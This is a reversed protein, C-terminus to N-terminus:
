TNTQEADHQAMYKLLIANRDEPTRHPCTSCYEGGDTKYWYCCSARDLFVQTRDRFTLEILGLQRTNLPSGPFRILSNVEAEILAAGATKDQEQMLWTLMGACSDAVNLWLGPSKSGLRSCLQDITLGFHTEIGDRLADRLAESNAVTLADPHGADPDDPLAMFRGSSFAVADAEGEDNYHVRIAAADLDPVRRDLLYCAISSALLQWQYIQLLSSAVINAARTKLRQQVGATLAVFREGGDFVSNAAIWGDDAPAGYHAKLYSSM